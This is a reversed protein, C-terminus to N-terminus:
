PRGACVACERDRTITALRQTQNKGDFIAVKGILAPIGLIMRLVELAQAAGVMGVLPGIVGSERCTNAEPADPHLFCQYCPSAANRGTDFSMLQGEWGSVAASVLPKKLSVCTQNVTLRTAFNDCGDAVIDYDQFLRAANASTLAEPYIKVRVEPNLESVRDRASEVKLRGLDGTEHIVQRALNSLEVRDPDIIGLTGIGAAALYPIMGSGLGGAGVVLVRAAALKAQGADGVEALMTQRIYRREHESSPQM